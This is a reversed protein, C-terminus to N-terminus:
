RRFEWPPVPSPRAWLGHRQQRAAQEAAAYGRRDAITQEHEYAKFHWAHGTAVMILGVDQGDVLVKAVLRGFHDRKYWDILVPKRYVSAALANKAKAGFVQRKEPADIGAIRVKHQINNRDLVVLTDGDLVDIVTAQLRGATASLAALLALATFWVRVSLKRCFIQAVRPPTRLAADIM